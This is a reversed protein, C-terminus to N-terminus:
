TLRKLSQRLKTKTKLSLYKRNISQQTTLEYVVPNLLRLSLIKSSKM